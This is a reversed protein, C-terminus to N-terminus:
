YQVSVRQAGDTLGRADVKHINHISGFELQCGREGYHSSREYGGGMLQNAVATQWPRLDMILM